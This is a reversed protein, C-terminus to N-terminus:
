ITSLVLLPAAKKSNKYSHLIFVCLYLIVMFIPEVGPQINISTKTNFSYSQGVDCILPANFEEKGNYIRYDFVVQTNNNSFYSRDILEILEEEGSAKNYFSIQYKQSVNNENYDYPQVSLNMYDNKNFDEEKETNNNKSNIYLNFGTHDTNMDLRFKAITKDNGDTIKPTESRSLPNLKCKYVVNGDSNRIKFKMYDLIGKGYEANLFVSENKTPLTDRNSEVVICNM